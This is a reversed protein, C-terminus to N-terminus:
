LEDGNAATFTATVNEAYVIPYDSFDLCGREVSTYKGLYNATGTRTSPGFGFDYGEGICYALWDLDAEPQEPTVMGYTEFPVNEQALALDFTFFLVLTATLFKSILSFKM